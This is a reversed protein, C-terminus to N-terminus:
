FSTQRDRMFNKDKCVNDNQGLYAKIGALNAIAVDKCMANIRNGGLAMKM